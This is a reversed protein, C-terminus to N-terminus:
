EASEGNGNGHPGEELRTIREHHSEAIRALARINEADQGLQGQMKELQGQMKELQGQTRELASTLKEFRERYERDNDLHIRTLRQLDQAVAELREDITM